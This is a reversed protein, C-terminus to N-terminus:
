LPEFLFVKKSFEFRDKFINIGGFPYAVTNKIEKYFLFERIMIVSLIRFCCFFNYSGFFSNIKVLIEILFTNCSVQVVNILM